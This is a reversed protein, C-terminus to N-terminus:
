AGQVQAGETGLLLDSLARRARSLRSMVTGIPTQLADAAEQYTYGEVLVLTAIERQGPPLARIARLAEAAEARAHADDGSLGALM